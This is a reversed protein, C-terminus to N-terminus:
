GWEAISYQQYRAVDAALIARSVVVVETLLGSLSDPGVEIGDGIRFRTMTMAGVDGDSGALALTGDVYADMTTGSFSWALRIRGSGAPVTSAVGTKIGAADDERKFGIFESTDLTLACRAQNTPSDDWSVVTNVNAYSTIKCTALVSFAKDSGNLAAFLATSNNNLSKASFSAASIGAKWAGSDDLIPQSAGSSQDVYNGNGSRDEIRTINAGDLTLYPLSVHIWSLPALERPSWGGRRGLASASGSFDM